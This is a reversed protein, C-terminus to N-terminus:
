GAPGTIRRLEAVFRGITDRADAGARESEEPRNLYGHVTGPQVSETM